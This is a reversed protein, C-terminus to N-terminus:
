SQDDGREGAVHEVASRDDESLSAEFGHAALDGERDLGADAMAQGVLAYDADTASGLSRAGAQWRRFAITLGAGGVVFATAPLAWALAEIGSATPVLLEEGNYAVVIRDIIQQDALQGENVDRRIQERIAVSAANRSVYVSEGQCVPCALRQELAAIRDEPTLPGGDRAIGVALFGVVVFLLLLWGPWRKVRRNWARSM